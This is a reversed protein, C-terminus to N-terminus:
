SRWTPKAEERHCSSSLERYYDLVQRSVNEWSYKEAKALGKGAMKLRLNKDHILTLLADAIARHDRPQVLLGEEGHTLVGAYGAINTAVVPKGSAMAELLV